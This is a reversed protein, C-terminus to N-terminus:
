LKLIKKNSRCSNEMLKRGCLTRMEPQIFRCDRRIFRNRRAFISKGNKSDDGLERFRKYKRALYSKQMKLITLHSYKKSKCAAVAEPASDTTSIKKLIAENTLILDKKLFNYKDKKRKICFSQRNRNQITLKKM